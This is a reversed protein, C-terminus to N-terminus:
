IDKKPFQLHKQCQCKHNMEFFDAGTESSLICKKKPVTLPTPANLGNELALLYM